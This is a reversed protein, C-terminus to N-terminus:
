HVRFSSERILQHKTHAQNFSNFILKHQFIELNYNFFESTFFFINKIEFKQIAYLYETCKSCYNKLQVQFVIPNNGMKAIVNLVFLQM